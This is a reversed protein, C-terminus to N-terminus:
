FKENNRNVLFASGYSGQGMKKEIVYENENVVIIMNLYDDKKKRKSIKKLKRKSTKRSKRKSFKTKSSKKKSKISKRKSMKRRSSKKKISKRKSIKNMVKIKFVYINLINKQV